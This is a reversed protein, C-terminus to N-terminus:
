FDNYLATACLMNDQFVFVITNEGFKYELYTYSEPTPLFFIAQSNGPKTETQEGVAKIIQESIDGVKFGYSDDLSVILSVKNDAKYYYRANEYLLINHDEAEIFSYISHGHEDESEEANKQDLDEFKKLMKEADSGLSYEHEPIKGIKAYYGVDVSHSETKDENKSIKACGVFSLSLVFCLIIAIAKKM